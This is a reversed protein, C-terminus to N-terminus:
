KSRSTRPKKKATTKKKAKAPAKRKTAKAVQGRSMSMVWKAVGEETSLDHGARIGELIMTKIPAHLRTDALAEELRAPLAPDALLALCATASELKLQVSSCTMLHRAAALVSPATAAEIPAKRPLVEFLLRQMQQPTARLLPIGLEGGAQVILMNAEDLHADEVGPMRGLEALVAEAYEDLEDERLAEVAIVTDPLLIPARLEVRVAGLPTDITRPWAITAATEWADALSGRTEVLEAFATMIATVGLLETRTCGRSVRDEDLVTPAPYAVHDVVEWNHKAVERVMSAPLEARPDYSFMIHGPIDPEEGRAAADIADYFQMTDDMSRFLSFGYATQRQGVVIIAGDTIGLVDCSVGLCVDSPVAAWPAARYLRAAAAFMAAVDDPAMDPGIFTDDAAFRLDRQGVHSLMDKAVEDVIPTPGVVLETDGISARVAEALQKDRVRIRAPAYSARRTTEVFLEGARELVEDPRVLTTSLIFYSAADVWLVAAPRYAEGEGTVYSPLTVVAGQWEEGPELARKKRM